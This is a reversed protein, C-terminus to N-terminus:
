LGLDHTLQKPDTYGTVTNGKYWFFPVGVGGAKEFEYGGRTTTIDVYRFRGLIGAKKLAAKQKVCYPCSERGYMVPNTPKNIKCLLLFVIASIAVVSIYRKQANTVYM